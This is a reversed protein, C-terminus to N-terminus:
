DGLTEADYALSAYVDSTEGRKILVRVNFGQDQAESALSQATNWVAEREDNSYSAFITLTARPDPTQQALWDGITPGLPVSRYIAQAAATHPPSPEQSPQAEATEEAEEGALATLTLLFLILSLDALILQWSQSRSIKM